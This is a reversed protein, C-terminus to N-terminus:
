GAQAAIPNTPSQQGVGSPTNKSQQVAVGGTMAGVIITVGGTAGTGTNVGGIAGETTIVGGTAGNGPGGTADGLDLVPLMLLPLMLEEGPTTVGTPDGVLLDEMLEPLM